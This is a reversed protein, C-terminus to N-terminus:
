WAPPAWTPMSGPFPWRRCIPSSRRRCAQSRFANGARKTHEDKDGSGADALRLSLAGLEYLIKVSGPDMKRASELESLAADNDGEAVGANVLDLRCPETIEPPYRM